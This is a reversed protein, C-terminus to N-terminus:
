GVFVDNIDWFRGCLTQYLYDKVPIIRRPHKLALELNNKGVARWHQLGGREIQRARAQAKPWPVVREEIGLGRDGTGEPRLDDSM